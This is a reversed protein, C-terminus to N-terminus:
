GPFIVLWLARSIGPQLAAQSAARFSFSNLFSNLLGFIGRNTLSTPEPLNLRLIRAFRQEDFDGWIQRKFLDFLNEPECGFVMESSNHGHVGRNIM